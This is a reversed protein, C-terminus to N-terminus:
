KAAGGNMRDDATMYKRDAGASILLYGDKQRPVTVNGTVSFYLNPTAFDAKVAPDTTANYGNGTIAGAVPNASPAPAPFIYPALQSPDYAPTTSPPAGPIVGTAGVRARIYLIPMADPFGDVFEPIETDKYLKWYAVEGRSPDSWTKWSTGNKQTDLGGVTPDIFAGYQKPKLPNL